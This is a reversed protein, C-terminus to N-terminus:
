LTWYIEVVDFFSPRKRMIIRYVSFKTKGYSEEYWEATVPGEPQGPIKLVPIILIIYYIKSM